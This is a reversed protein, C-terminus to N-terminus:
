SERDGFAKPTDPSIFTWTIPQLHATKLINPMGQPEFKVVAWETTKDTNAPVTEEAVTCVRQFHTSTVSPV